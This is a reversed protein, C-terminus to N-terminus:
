GRECLGLELDPTTYVGAGTLPIAVSSRHSENDDFRGAGTVLVVGVARVQASFRGDRDLEVTQDGVDIPFGWLGKICAVSRVRGHITASELAPTTMPWAFGVALHDPIALSGPAAVVATDGVFLTAHNLGTGIEWQLAGTNRDLALVFGYSTAIVLLRDHVVPVTGHGVRHHTHWLRQGDTIRYASLTDDELDAVYAIGADVLLRPYLDGLPLETRHGTAADYLALHEDHTTLAIGGTGVALAGPEDPLEVSWTVAGTEADFATLVRHLDDGGSPAPVSLRRALVLTQADGAFRIDQAAPLEVTWRPKGDGLGFSSVSSVSSPDDRTVWARDGAIVLESAWTDPVSWAARLTGADERISTLDVWRALYGGPIPEWLHPVGSSPLGDIERFRLERGTAAAFDVIGVRHEDWAVLSGGVVAIPTAHLEARWLAFPATPTPHNALPTTAEGRCASAIALLAIRRHMHWRAYGLSWLIAHM